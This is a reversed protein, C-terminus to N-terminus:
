AVTRCRWALCALWAFSGLGAINKVFTALGAIALLLHSLAAQGGESFAEIQGLQILNETWDAAMLLLVPALLWAVAVPRGLLNWAVLLGITLAGGYLCPFPLDILLMHRESSLLEPGAKRLTDWRTGISAAGYFGIKPRAEDGLAAKLQEFQPRSGMYVFGGVLVILPLFFILLTRVM